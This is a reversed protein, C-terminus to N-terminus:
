KVMIKHTKGDETKIINIGKQLSNQKVGNINFIEANGSILAEIANIGNTDEGLYFAKAGSASAKMYARNAPVNPQAVSTDVKFFGVKDGQKQLVYCANPAAIKVYTGVLQGDENSLATGQADGTLTADWAGEIIYPKNAELANVETLELTAGKDELCSYVKVGEPIESVAFPLITTGWGAATTNITISPKQTEVILLNNNRTTGYLGADQAGLNINSANTFNYVGETNTATVTYVEASNAEITTRVQNANGGYVVGTCLYRKAGAADIQYITYKNKGEAATFYFGQALNTNPEKDFQSTYGGADNRGGAYFTIAKGKTSLMVANNNNTWTLEGMIINFVQDATPANLTTLAEYAAEVDAVSAEGQVLTNAADIAEQSYQFANEGINATPIADLAYQVNGIVEEDVVEVLYFNDFSVASNLWRARFQVYAYDDTNTFKYKVNTWDTGVATSNESIKSAENGLENTLSVVHFESNGASTSKVQYGFVYTKGAEIAWGTGISNVGGAGTHGKAKIYHNNEETILEFNDASMAVGSGTTWGYFSNPYEFAGNKILNDGYSVVTRKAGENVYDDSAVETEPFSVTVTAYASVNEDLTSKVTITATGSSVATVVGDAVTAVNEDSSAWTVTTTANEPDFTPTLTVTNETATLTVETKDLTIGTPIVAMEEETLERNKVLRFNDAKYWWYGEEVYDKHVGADGNGGGVVGITANGDKVLFTFTTEQFTDSGPYEGGTEIGENHEGNAILYITAGDSSVSATLTYQGNPLNTVSQTLPVGQWWTNFLYKGDSGTATYSANSTERVGTDSSSTATWGTMNGYEFSQNQIALTFDAQAATQSKIVPIVANYAEVVKTMIDADAITGENYAAKITNYAEASVTASTAAELAVDIKTVATTMDEYAKASAQAAAIADMLAQYTAPSPSEMYANEAATQAAAVDKNMKGEVLTYHDFVDGYVLSFSRWCMWYDSTSNDATLGIELNATAESLNFVLNNIGNGEAIWTSGQERNNVSGCGVLNTSYTGANLTATMNDRTYAIASLKYNGAPLTSAITQKTTAGSVNWYEYLQNELSPSGSNTWYDLTGSIGPAANDILANTLDITEGDGLQATPLYATLANRLTLIAADIGETTTAAEVQTNAASVDIGSNITLVATRINLYRAYDAIIDATAYTSVANNIATIAASYEDATSWTKNNTTIVSEINAYVAAPLQSEYTQAASVAAALQAEFESLDIPGYYQIQINDWICWLATNTNLHTGVNLTGGAYTYTSSWATQYNGATFSTSAAGMSGEDGTKAPFAVTQDGVYFYPLNTNDNGDQRYFAQGRVAYYGTPANEVAQCFDFAVHYSEVCFNTNDGANNKNTGGPFTWTWAVDYAPLKYRGFEPNKLLFTADVPNDESANAMAALRDDKTVLVWQANDGTETGFVVTTGEGSYQLNTEGNQIYYATVGDTRTAQTFTFYAASESDMYANTGLYGPGSAKDNTRIETNKIAYKGDSLELTSCFGGAELLTAQTGWSNGSSLWKGQGINYFYFNGEAVANGTWTQAFLNSGGLTFLALLALLLKQKM